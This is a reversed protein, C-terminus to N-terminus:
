NYQIDTHIHIADMSTHKHIHRQMKHKRQMNQNCIYTYTHGQCCTQLIVSSSSLRLLVIQGKIKALQMDTKPKKSIQVCNSQHLHATPLTNIANLNISKCKYSTWTAPTHQMFHSIQLLKHQQLQLAHTQQKHQIPRNLINGVKTPNWLVM